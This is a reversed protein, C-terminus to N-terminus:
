RLVPAYSATAIESADFSSTTTFSAIVVAACPFMRVCVHRANVSSSYRLIAEDKYHRGVERFAVIPRSVITMTPSSAASSRLRQSTDATRTFQRADITRVGSARMEGLTIKQENTM